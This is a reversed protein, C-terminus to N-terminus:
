WPIKGFLRPLFLAVQDNFSIIALSILMAFLFPLVGIILRELSIDSLGKATFLNLGVPPTILGIALNIVLIIGFHIIDIGFMAAIPYLIPSLILIAATTDMIMGVVLLVLNVLILFGFTSDLWARMSEAVMTPVQQIALVEGLTMGTGVILMIMATTVTTSRLSDIIGALDLERYILVGAVLGYFVAVVAAETPTFIGGYIGGLIIIPVLLAWIASKFEKWANALSFGEGRATNFGQRRCIIYAVVCLFFACLIGPLFGAMFLNSVSAGTAVGFMIMPISPPIIVGLCGAAAILGLAFSKPYGARVMFPVMISGIAAVTAPSSGSIAGFFLCTIVAVFALGGNIHGILSNAFNVLRLSLGGREMLAGSLVFFPIAMLPFSDVAAFLNTAVYRWSEGDLVMYTMVALGISVGIPVSLFLYLGFSIFIAWVSM